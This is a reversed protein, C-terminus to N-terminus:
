RPPSPARLRRATGRSPCASAYSRRCAGKAALRLAQAAADAPETILADAFKRPRLSGDPEYRRDAFGEAGRSIGDGALRGADRVWGAGGAGSGERVPGRGRRHGAGRGSEEGRVNYLAGHPKVHALDGRDRGARRGARVRDARDTGRIAGNGRTRLQRSGSLGSAGWRSAMGGRWIWRAGCAPRM